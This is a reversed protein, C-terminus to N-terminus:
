AKLVRERCLNKYKEVWPGFTVHKSNELWAEKPTYKTTEQVHFFDYYEAIESVFEQRKGDLIGTWLVYKGSKEIWAHSFEGYDPPFCIGHVLLLENSHAVEPNTKIIETLMDLADDFCTHTPYINSM